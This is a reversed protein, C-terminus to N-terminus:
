VPYQAPFKFVLHKGSVISWLGNATLNFQQAYTKAFAREYTINRNQSTKLILEPQSEWLELLLDWQEKSLKPKKYCKNKRITKWRAKIGDSHKWGTPRIRKKSAISMKRRSEESFKYGTTSFNKSLHNGKGDISLNLGNPTLTKYTEIFEKERDHVSIDKSEVLIQIDFDFGMFRKSKQHALMRRRIGYSDTTGVYLQGDSRTLLYIYYTRDAKTPAIPFKFNKM